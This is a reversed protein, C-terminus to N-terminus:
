QIDCTQNRHSSQNALNKQIKICENQDQADKQFLDFTKQGILVM